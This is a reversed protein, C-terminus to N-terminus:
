SLNFKKILFYYFLFNDANKMIINNYINIKKRKNRKIKKSTKETIVNYKRM